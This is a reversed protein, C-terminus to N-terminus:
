KDHPKDRTIGLGLLFLGGVIIVVLALAMIGFSANTM